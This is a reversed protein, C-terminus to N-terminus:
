DIFRNATINKMAKLGMFSEAVQLSNFIVVHMQCHKQQVKKRRQLPIQSIYIMYRQTFHSKPIYLICECDISIGNNNIHSEWSTFLVKIRESSSNDM